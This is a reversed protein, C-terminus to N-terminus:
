TRSVSARADEDARDAPALGTLAAGILLARWAAPRKRKEEMAGM